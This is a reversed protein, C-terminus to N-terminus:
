VRAEAMSPKIVDKWIPMNVAQIVPIRGTGPDPYHLVANSIHKWPSSKGEVGMVASLMSGLESNRGVLVGTSLLNRSSATSSAMINPRQGDFLANGPCISLQADPNAKILAYATEKSQPDDATLVFDFHVPALAESIRGTQHRRPDNGVMVIRVGRKGLKLKPMHEGLHSTLNLAEIEATRASLAFELVSIGCNSHQLSHFHEPTVDVATSILARATGGHTVLVVTQGRRRVLFDRWFRRVQSFLEQVPFFSIRSKSSMRFEHPQNTWMRYDDPFQKSVAKLGLGQWQPLDIEMLDDSTSLCLKDRGHECITAAIIESTQLARRLPSSVVADIHENALGRGTQIATAIGRDTLVPEDSRGQYRQQMNFTSQAHRVILVRTRSGHDLAPPPEFTLSM